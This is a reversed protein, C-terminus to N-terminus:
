VRLSQLACLALVGEPLPGPEVDFLTDAAHQEVLTALTPALQPDLGADIMRKLFVAGGGAVLLGSDCGSDRGVLAGVQDNPAGNMRAILNPTKVQSRLRAGAKQRCALVACDAMGILRDQSAGQPPNTGIKESPTSGRPQHGIQMRWEREDDPMADEDKWNTARRYADEGIAMRDLAEAAAASRDPDEVVEAEDYWVRVAKPDLGLQVALPSILTATLYGVFERAVPEGHNKWASEDIAWANWHNTDKVGLMSGSPMDLGIEIRGICEDRLKTEQYLAAGRVDIHFINDKLSGQGAPPMDAFIIPPAVASPATEDTIPLTFADYIARATASVLTGDGADVKTAGLWAPMIMVGNGAVRNRATNRVAQKLLWLEQCDELVARMPADPDGSYQPDPHMFRYAIMTGPEPNDPDTETIADGQGGGHASRKRHYTGDKYSLESVSLMEWCEAGDDKITCALYCEGQVFILEGYTGQMRALGGSSSELRDLQGRLEPRETEAWGGEADREEVFLRLNSLMRRYFGGAYHLEGLEHFFGWAEQQWKQLTAGPENGEQRPAVPAASAVFGRRTFLGM